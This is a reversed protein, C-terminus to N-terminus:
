ELLEGLGTTKVTHVTDQQIETMEFTSTKLGHLYTPTVCTHLVKGRPKSLVHRDGMMGESEEM